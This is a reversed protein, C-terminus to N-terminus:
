VLSQTGVQLDLHDVAVVQHQLDLRLSRRLYDLPEDHGDAFRLRLPQDEVHRVGQVAGSRADGRRIIHLKHTPGSLTQGVQQSIMQPSNLLTM